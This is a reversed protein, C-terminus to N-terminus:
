AFTIETVLGNVVTLRARIKLKGPEVGLDPEMRGGAVEGGASVIADCVEQETRGVCGSAWNRYEEM